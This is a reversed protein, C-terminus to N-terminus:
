SYKWPISSSFSLRDQLDLENYSHKQFRYISTSLYFFCMLMNSFNLRSRDSVRMVEKPLFKLEVTESFWLKGFKDDRNSPFGM